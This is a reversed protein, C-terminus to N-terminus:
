KTVQKSVKKNNNNNYHWEEKMHDEEERDEELCIHEANIIASKQITAILHNGYDKGFETIMHNETYSALTCCADYAVKFSVDYKEFIDVIDRRLTLSEDIEEDTWHCDCTCSKNNNNNNSNSNNNIIM